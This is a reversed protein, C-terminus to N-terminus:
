NLTCGGHDCGDFDKDEYKKEYKEYLEDRIRHWQLQNDPSTALARKIDCELPDVCIVRNM